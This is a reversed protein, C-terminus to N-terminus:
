QVKYIEKSLMKSVQTFVEQYEKKTPKRPCNWFSTKQTTWRRWVMQQIYGLFDNSFETKAEKNFKTASEYLKDVLTGDPLGNNSEIVKDIEKVEDFLNWLREHYEAREM